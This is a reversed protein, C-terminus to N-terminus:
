DLDLDFPATRAPTQPAPALSGQPKKYLESALRGVDDEDPKGCLESALRHVDEEDSDEDSDEGEESEDNDDDDDGDREGQASEMSAMKSYRRRSPKEDRPMQRRSVSGHAEQSAKRRLTRKACVVALYVLM